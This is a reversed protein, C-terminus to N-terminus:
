LENALTDRGAVFEPTSLRIRVSTLLTAALQMVVRGYRSMFKTTSSPISGGVYQMYFLWEVM